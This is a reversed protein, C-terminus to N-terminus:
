PRQSSTPGGFEMLFWTRNDWRALHQREAVIRSMGWIVFGFKVDEFLGASALENSGAAILRSVLGADAVEEDDLRALRQGRAAVDLGLERPLVVVVGQGGLTEVVEPLPQVEGGLNDRGGVDLLLPRV